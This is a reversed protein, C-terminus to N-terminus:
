QEPPLEVPNPNAPDQGMAALSASAARLQDLVGSEEASSLGGTEIQAILRDIRASVENTAENLQSFADAFDQQSAM